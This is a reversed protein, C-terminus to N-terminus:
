VLCSVKKEDYLLNCITFIMRRLAKGSAETRQYLLLFKTGTLANPFNSLKKLLSTYSPLMKVKCVITKQLNCFTFIIGRPAKRIGTIGKGIGGNNIVATFSIHVILVKSSNSLMKNLLTYQQCKPKVFVITKQLQLQYTKIHLILTTEGSVM